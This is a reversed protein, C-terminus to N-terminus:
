NLQNIKGSGSIDSIISTPDGNYNVVGSGTIKVKLENSVNIDCRSSGEISISCNESTNMTGIYNGSGLIDISLNKLDIFNNKAYINGSGDIRVDLNKCGINENLEIDGSGIIRVSLYEDSSLDNLTIKGSGFLEVSNITPIVIRVTLDANRYNGKELEIEWEGSNVNRKLRNIINAHGTVEVKQEAGKSIIVNHSGLMAIKDFTSIDIEQTIIDGEGRIFLNDNTCSTILLAIIASLIYLNKM